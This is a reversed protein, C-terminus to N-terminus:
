SKLSLQYTNKDPERPQLNHKQGNLVLNSGFFALFHGQLVLIQYKLSFEFETDLVM